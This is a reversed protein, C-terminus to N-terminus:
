HTVLAKRSAETVNLNGHLSILQLQCGRAVACVTEDGIKKCWSLNLKRLRPCNLGLLVLSQAVASLAVDDIMLLRTLNLYHLKSCRSAIALLGESNIHGCGSLSISRINPCRISIALAASMTFNSNWYLSISQLKKGCRKTAAKIGEDTLSHCADLSLHRLNWQPLLELHEDLLTPCFQITLSVVASFRSSELLRSDFFLAPKAVPTLDLWAWFFPVTSAAAFEKCVASIAGLDRASLWQLAGALLAKLMRSSLSLDSHFRAAISSLSSADASEASLAAEAEHSREDRM